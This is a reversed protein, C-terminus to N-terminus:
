KCVHRCRMPRISATTTTARTPEQRRVQRRVQRRDVHHAVLGLITTTDGWSVPVTCDLADTNTLQAMIHCNARLVRDVTCNHPPYKELCLFAVDLDAHFIRGSSSTGSRGGAGGSRRSRRTHIRTVYQNPYQNDSKENKLGTLLLPNHPLLAYRRAINKLDDVERPTFFDGFCQREM